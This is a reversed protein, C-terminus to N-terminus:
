CLARLSGAEAAASSKSATATGAARSAEDVDAFMAEVEEDSPNQGLARMVYGLEETTIGGDGDKDFVNYADRFQEVQAPTLEPLPEAMALRLSEPRRLRLQTAAVRESVRAVTQWSVDDRQPCCCDQNELKTLSFIHSNRFDSTEDHSM